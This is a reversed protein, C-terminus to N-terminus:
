RARYTSRPNLLDNLGDGILNWGIGFLILALSIPVFTWWYHLPNGGIGLVWDRSAVLIQGWDTEGGIGIVTFASELLVVGAVDRAILVIAPALANPLLHRRLIRPNSVGVARAAAVFDSQKLQIVNVNTLRAYPMWSFIILTLMVPGIRLDVLLRQFFTAEDAMGPPPILQSFLWIGAIVPFTLFADTVRMAAGNPLGGAYGAIAGVTVGLLAAALAVTLGFKLASRSGWVLTYYVDLQGPVTGLRAEDSPPHPKRDSPAGVVRTPKPDDPNDPPALVPAMVAMFVFASIVLLGLAL